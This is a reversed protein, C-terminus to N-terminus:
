GGHVRVGRVGITITRCCGNRRASKNPYWPVLQPQDPGDREQMLLPAMRWPAHLYRKNCPIDLIM